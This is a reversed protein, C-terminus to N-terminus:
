GEKTEDAVRVTLSNTGELFGFQIKRRVTDGEKTLVEVQLYAEGAAKKFAEEQQPDNLFTNIGSKSADKETQYSICVALNMLDRADSPDASYVYGMSTYGYYYDMKEGEGIASLIGDTERIAEGSNRQKESFYVKKMLKCNHATYTVRQVTIPGRYQLGFDFTDKYLTQTGTDRQDIQSKKLDVPEGTLSVDSHENEDKYAYVSFRLNRELEKRADNQAATPQSVAASSVTGQVPRNELLPSAIFAGAALLALGGFVAYKATIKKRGGGQVMQTEIEDQLSGAMPIEEFMQLLLPNWEEQGFLHSLSEEAKQLAKGVAREARRLLVALAELKYDEKYYLYLIIRQTTTMKQVTRFMAESEPAQFLAEQRLPDAGRFLSRLMQERGCRLTLRALRDRQEQQGTGRKETRYRAFAQKAALQADYVSGTQLYAIRYVMGTLRSATEASPLSSPETNPQMSKAGKVTLNEKRVGTNHRAKAASPIM